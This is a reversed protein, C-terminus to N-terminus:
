GMEEEYYVIDQGTDWAKCVHKFEWEHDLNENELISNSAKGLEELRVTTEIWEEKGFTMMERVEEPKM